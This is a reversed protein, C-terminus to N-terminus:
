HTEYKMIHEYLMSLTGQERNFIMQQSHHTHVSPDLTSDM